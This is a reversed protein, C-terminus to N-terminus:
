EPEKQPDEIPVERKISGKEIADKIAELAYINAEFVGRERESLFLVKEQDKLNIILKKIDEASLRSYALVFTAREDKRIASDYIGALGWLFGNWLEGRGDLGEIVDLEKKATNQDGRALALCLNRFSRKYKEDPLLSDRGRKMISKKHSAGKLM